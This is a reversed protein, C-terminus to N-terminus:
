QSASSFLEPSILDGGDKLWKEAEALASPDGIHLWSGDHVLGCIRPLSGDAKRNKDYIVNMSFPEVRTASFARPHLLQVGTFVFPASDADGRRRLTKDENLFFDGKGHFGLTREIPQLLLLADMSEDDWHQALRAIASEQADVCLTDSNASLFPGEGLKSLANVIGGGTELLTEEHSLTIHPVTRSQLHTHLMDSLYHSNVVVQQVQGMQMWDLVRDILTRGALPVLPKPMTNTIPRMRTGLGAALLMAHTIVPKSM